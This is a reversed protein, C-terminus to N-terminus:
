PLGEKLLPNFIRSACVRRVGNISVRCGAKLWFIDEKGHDGAGGMLAARNRELETESFQLITEGVDRRSLNSQTPQTRKM